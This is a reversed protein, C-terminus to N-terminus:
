RIAKAYHIRDYGDKRGRGTEVYGRRAYFAQNETMLRHTYLRVQPLGLERADEEARALLRAGFGCGQADPAVAVTDLLLHDDRIDNVLAGVVRDRAVLVWVRSDAVVAAYDALMPAPPKGIRDVYKDFSERVVRGVAQADAHTARRLEVDM